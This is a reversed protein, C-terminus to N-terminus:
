KRREKKRKMRRECEIGSRRECVRDREKERVSQGAGERECKTGSRRECTGDRKGSECKM